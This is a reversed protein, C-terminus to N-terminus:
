AKAREANEAAKEWEIGLATLREQVDALRKQVERSKEGSAYVEPKTLENECETKQAELVAIEAELREVERELKRQEAKKKKAQEWSLQGRGDAGKVDSFTKNGPPTKSAGSSAAEDRAPFLATGAAATGLARPATGSQRDAAPRFPMGAVSGNKEAEIRELYYAYDGPFIRFRGKELALVRTSLGEIFGRDHSVFVVTGGFDKLAQM